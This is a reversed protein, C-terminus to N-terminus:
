NQAVISDYFRRRSSAVDATVSRVKTCKSCSTCILDCLAINLM